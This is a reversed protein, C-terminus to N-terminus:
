VGRNGMGLGIKGRGAGRGGGGGEEAHCFTAMLSSIKYRKM